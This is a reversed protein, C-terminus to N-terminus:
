KDRWDDDHEDLFDIGQNKLDNLACEDILMKLLKYYEQASLKEKIQYKGLIKNVTTKFFERTTMDFSRAHLEEVVEVARTYTKKKRMKAEM